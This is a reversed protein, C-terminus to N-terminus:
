KVAEWHEKGPNFLFWSIVGVIHAIDPRTYVMVYMLSGMALSYPISEMKKKEEDSISCCKKNLKFHGDLSCSVQKAEKMNYRGFLREIYKQQSLWLKKFNLDRIIRMGLIQKAGRLNKMDFVSSLEKKLKCILKVDQGAILIDDVYLLLMVFSNAYYKKFYVYPDAKTRLFDHSMM